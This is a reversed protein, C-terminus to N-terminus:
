LLTVDIASIVDGTRIIEKNYIEDTIDTIVGNGDRTFTVTKSATVISSILGNGDRNIVTDEPVGYRVTHDVDEQLISDEWGVNYNANSLKTLVQNISGGIPLFGGGIVSKAPEIVDILVVPDAPLGTPIAISNTQGEQNPNSGAGGLPITGM